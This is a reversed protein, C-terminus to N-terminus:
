DQVFDATGSIITKSTAQDCMYFVGGGDYPSKSYILAYSKGNTGVVQYGYTHSKKGGMKTSNSSYELTEQKQFGAIDLYKAVGNKFVKVYYQHLEFGTKHTTDEVRVIPADQKDNQQIQATQAQQSDSGYTNQAHSSMPSMAMMGGLIGAKLKNGFGENIEEDERLLNRIEDLVARSVISEKEWEYDVKDPEGNMMYYQSSDNNSKSSTRYSQKQRTQRVKSSTSQEYEMMDNFHRSLATVLSKHYGRLGGVRKMSYGLRKAMDKITKPSITTSRTEKFYKQITGISWISGSFGM